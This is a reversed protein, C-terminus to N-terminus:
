ATLAATAAEEVAIHWNVMFIDTKEVEEIVKRADRFLQSFARASLDAFVDDRLESLTAGEVLMLLAVKANVETEKYSPLELAVKAGVQRKLFSEDFDWRTFYPEEAPLRELSKDQRDLARELRAEYLDERHGAIYQVADSIVGDLTLGELMNRFARLGERQVVKIKKYVEGVTPIFSSYEFPMALEGEKYQARHKNALAEVVPLERFEARLELWRAAKTVAASQSQQRLRPFGSATEGSTIYRSRGELKAVAKLEADSRLDRLARGMERVYTVGAGTQYLWDMIRDVTAYWVAIQVRDIASYGLLGLDHKGQRELWEERRVMKDFASGDTGSWRIPENFRANVYKRYELRLQSQLTFVSSSLRAAYEWGIRSWDAVHARDIEVKALNVGSKYWKLWQSFSVPPQWGTAVSMAAADAARVAKATKALKAKTAGVSKSASSKRAKREAKPQPAVSALMQARLAKAREVFSTSV